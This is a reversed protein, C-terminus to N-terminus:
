EDPPKTFKNITIGVIVQWFCIYIPVTFTPFIFYSSFMFLLYLLLTSATIILYTKVQLVELGKFKLTLAIMLIAPLYGRIASYYVARVLEPYDDAFDAFFDPFDSRDFYGETNHRSSGIDFTPYGDVIYSLEYFLSWIVLSLGIVSIIKLPTKRFNSIGLALGFFLGPILLIPNSGIRLSFGVGSVLITGSLIGSILYLLINRANRKIHSRKTKM